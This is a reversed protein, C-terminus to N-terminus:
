KLGRGKGTKFEVVCGVVAGQNMVGHSRVRLPEGCRGTRAVRVGIEPVAHESPADLSPVGQPPVVGPKHLVLYRIRSKPKIKAM